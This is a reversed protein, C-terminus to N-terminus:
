NITTNRFSNVLMLLKLENKIRLFLNYEFSILIRLLLKEIL